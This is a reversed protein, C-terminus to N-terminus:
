IKCVTQKYNYTQMLKLSVEVFPCSGRGQGWIQQGCTKFGAMLTVFSLGFDRSDFDLGINVSLSPLV